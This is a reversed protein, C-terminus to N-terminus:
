IQVFQRVFDSALSGQEVAGSYAQYRIYGLQPSIIDLMMMLMVLACLIVFAIMSRRRLQREYSLDKLLQQCFREDAPSYTVKQPRDGLELLDDVSGGLANIIQCVQFFGPNKTEGRFFRKVTTLPVGSKKSIEAYSVGSETQLCCVKEWVMEADDVM